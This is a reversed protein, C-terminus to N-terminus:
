TFKSYIIGVTQFAAYITAGIVLPGIITLIRYLMKTQQLNQATIDVVGRLGKAESYLRYIFIALFPGFLATMIVNIITDPSISWSLVYSGVLLRGVYYIVALMLVATALLRTFQSRRVASYERSVILADLGKYGELVVVYSVLSLSIMLILGPLFLMGLGAVVAFLRLMSAWWLRGIIPWAQKLRDPFSIKIDPRSISIILTAEGWFFLIIGALPLINALISYINTNSFTSAYFQAYISSELVIVPILLLTLYLLFNNKYQKWSNKLLDKYSSLDGSRSLDSTNLM